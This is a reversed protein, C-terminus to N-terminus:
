KQFFSIKMLQVNLTRIVQELSNVQLETELNALIKLLADQAIDEAFQDLEYDVYQHLAPKLGRVLIQRLEAIATEDAPASLLKV